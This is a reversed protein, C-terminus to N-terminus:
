DYDTGNKGNQEFRKISRDTFRRCSADRFASGFFVEGIVLM